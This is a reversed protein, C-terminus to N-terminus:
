FFIKCILLCNGLEGLGRYWFSTLREAKSISFIKWELAFLVWKWLFPQASLRMKFTLTKSSPLPRNTQQCILAERMRVAMDGPCPCGHVATEGKNPSMLMTNGDPRHVPWALRTCLVGKLTLEVCRKHSSNAPFRVATRWRRARDYVRRSHRASSGWYPRFMSSDM